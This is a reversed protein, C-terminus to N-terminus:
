KETDNGYGAEANEDAENDLKEPISNDGVNDTLYLQVTAPSLSEHGAVNYLTQVTNKVKKLSRGNGSVEFQNSRCNIQVDFYEELQRINQNVPGCLNALRQNDLPLLDFKINATANSNPM